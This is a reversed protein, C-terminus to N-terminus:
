LTEILDHQLPPVSRTGLPEPALYRGLTTPTADTSLLVVSEASEQWTKPM